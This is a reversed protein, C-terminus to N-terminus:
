GGSGSKSSNSRDCLIIPLSGLFCMIGLGYMAARYGVDELIIGILTVIIAAVIKISFQLCAVASAAENPLDKVLRSDVAALCSASAFGFAFLVIVVASIHEGTTAGMLVSFISTTFATVRAVATPGISDNLRRTLTTGIVAGMSRLVMVIGVMSPSLGYVDYLMQPYIFSTGWLTGFLLSGCLVPRLVDFRGLLLLAQLKSTSKTPPPSPSSSTSSSSPSSPRPASSSPLSSPPKQSPPQKQQRHHAEQPAEEDGEKKKDNDWYRSTAGGGGGGGGGEIRTKGVVRHKTSSTIETIPRGSRLGNTEKMIFPCWLLMAVSWFGLFLFNSRWGFYETM